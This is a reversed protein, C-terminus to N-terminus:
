VTPLRLSQKYKLACRILYLCLWEASVKCEDYESNKSIKM